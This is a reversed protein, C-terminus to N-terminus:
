QDFVINKVGDHFHLFCSFYLVTKIDIIHKINSWNSQFFNDKGEM